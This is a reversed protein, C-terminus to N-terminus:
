LDDPSTNAGCLVVVVREDARPTYVGSTLAALAAAAAHEVVIRYQDWLIQRAAIIDPDTVLLSRVRTRVAVEYAIHGLRRAGLSDAAVGSVSVDAPGGKDLATRLTPITAPEVGVVHASGEVAAAVGAM